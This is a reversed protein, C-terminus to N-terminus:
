YFQGQESGSDGSLGVHTDLNFKSRAKSQTAAHTVAIFLSLFACINLIARISSHSFFVSDLNTTVTQPRSESSESIHHPNNLESCPLVCTLHFVKTMEVRNKYAHATGHVPFIFEMSCIPAKKEGRFVSESLMGNLNCLYWVNSKSCRRETLNQNLDM